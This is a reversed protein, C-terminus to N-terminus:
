GHIAAAFKKVFDGSSMKPDNWFKNIIDTEAGEVSPSALMDVSPTQNAPNAMLEHGHQACIDLSKVDVDQRIPISGKKAAFRLQTGKSMMVKVLLDQAKAQAPDKSKPFVFVDGGVVYSAGLITCGFQKGATQHANAFEGKAWDGMFQFAAKGQIVMATADNWNRNNAGPDTYAKLKKFTDAVKAFVPGTIDKDGKGSWIAVYMKQGGISALVANFLIAEQWSQTSAALPVVGAAKLKPMDALVDDFTKPVALGAKALVATNYWLWNQGHINVPIAYIHGNRKVANLFLPPVASEWGGAKADADLNRLLHNNVLDDFQKGTNFQSATPPKGGVIRNIAAARAADGGAVADNFWNGGAKDYDQAFVHVAAAEGGSTWWHMVDAKEAASAAAIGFGMALAAVGARLPAAKISIKM